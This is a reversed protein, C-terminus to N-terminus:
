VPFKFFGLSEKLWLRPHEGYLYAFQLVIHSGPLMFLLHSITSTLYWCGIFMRSIFAVLVADCWKGSDTLTRVYQQAGCNCKLVLVLKYLKIHVYLCSIQQGDNHAIALVHLTPSSQSCVHGMISNCFKFGSFNTGICVLLGILMLRFGQATSVRGLGSRHGTLIRLNSIHTIALQFTVQQKLAKPLM